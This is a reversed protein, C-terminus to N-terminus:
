RYFLTITPVVEPKDHMKHSDCLYFGLAQVVTVTGLYQRNYNNKHPLM